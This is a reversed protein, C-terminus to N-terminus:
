LYNDTLDNQFLIIDGQKLIKKLQSHAIQASEFTLVTPFFDSKMKNSFYKDFYKQIFNTGKTQILIVVDIKKEILKQAIQTHIIEMQDGLEVLGPTLFITRKM